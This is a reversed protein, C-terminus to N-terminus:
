LWPWMTIELGLVREVFEARTVWWFGMGRFGHAGAGVGAARMRGCACGM